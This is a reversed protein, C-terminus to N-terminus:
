GGSVSPLIIVEDGEALATDLGERDRINASNVFVNVHRRVAGTDDCIGAYLSPHSREIDALAAGVTAAEVALRSKGGCRDRLPGPVFVTITM